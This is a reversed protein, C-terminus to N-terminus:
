IYPTHLPQIVMWNLNGSHSKKERKSLLAAIDYKDTLSWVAGLPLGEPSLIFMWTQQCDDQVTLSFHWPQTDLMGAELRTHVTNLDWSLSQCGQNSPKWSQVRDLCIGSAEILGHCTGEVDQGTWKESIMSWEIGYLRLYKTDNFSGFSIFYVWWYWSDLSLRLDAAQANQVFSKDSPYICPWLKHSGLVSFWHVHNNVYMLSLNPVIKTLFCTFNQLAFDAIIVDETSYRYWLQSRQPRYIKM